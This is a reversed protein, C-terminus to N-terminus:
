KGERPPGHRLTITHEKDYTSLCFENPLIYETDVDMGEFESEEIVYNYAGCFLRRLLTALAFFDMAGPKKRYRPVAYVLDCARLSNEGEKTKKNGSRCKEKKDVYWPLYDPTAGVRVDIVKGGWTFMKQVETKTFRPIDGDLPVAVSGGLDALAFDWEACSKTEVHRVLINAAKLDRHVVGLEHMKILGNLMQDAFRSLMESLKGNAICKSIPSGYKTKALLSGLDMDYREFLIGQQVGSVGKLSVDKRLGFCKAINPNPNEEPNAIENMELEHHLEANSEVDDEKMTKLVLPEGNEGDYAYIIGFGGQGLVEADPGEEVEIEMCGRRARMLALGRRRKRVRELSQFRLNSSTMTKRMFADIVGKLVSPLPKLGCMCPYERAGSTGCVIREDEDIIFAAVQKDLDGKEDLLNEYEHCVHQLVDTQTDETTECLKKIKKNICKYNPDNPDSDCSNRFRILKSICDQCEDDDKEVKIMACSSSITLLLTTIIFSLRM